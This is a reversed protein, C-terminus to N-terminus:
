SALALALQYVNRSQWPRRTRQAQLAHQPSIVFDVLQDAQNLQVAAAVPCADNLLTCIHEALGAARHTTPATNRSQKSCSVVQKCGACPPPRRRV